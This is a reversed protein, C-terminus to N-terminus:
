ALRTIERVLNSVCAHLCFEARPGSTTVAVAAVALQRALEPTVVEAVRALLDVVLLIVAEALVVPLDAALAAEVMRVAAV